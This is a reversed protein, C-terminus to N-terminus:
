DLVLYKEINLKELPLYDREYDAPLPDPIQIKHFNDTWRKEKSLELFVKVFNKQLSSPVRPHAVIPHPAFPPTEFLIRLNERVEPPQRLFTNNVGGGAQALGLLVHRYVNDHTKVYKPTFRIKFKETLLARMYLSAAFANPAPFAIVAGDLDTISSFPADKKIVIIGKLPTRDRILPIYGQAKKAMVAHYPNMFAFDFEGALFAKEFEPITKYIKLELQINLIKSIEKLVPNWASYIYEPEFQPVVGFIFRQSTTSSLSTKVLLGVWLFSVIIPFLYKKLVIM